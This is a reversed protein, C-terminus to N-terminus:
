KVPTTHIVLNKTQNAVQLVKLIIILFEVAKTKQSYIIIRISLRNIM